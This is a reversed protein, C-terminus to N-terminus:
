SSEEKINPIIEKQLLEEYAAESKELNAKSYRETNARWVFTYKNADAEIKTGDIYVAEEDIYQNEVLFTRFVV